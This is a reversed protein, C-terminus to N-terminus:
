NKAIADDYSPPEDVSSDLPATPQNESQDQGIEEIVTENSLLFQGSRRFRESDRSATRKCASRFVCFFSFAIAFGALALVSMTMLCDRSIATDSEPPKECGRPAM